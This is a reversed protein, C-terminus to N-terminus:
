RGRITSSPPAPCRAGRPRRQGHEAASPRRRESADGDHRGAAVDPFRQRAHEADGRTRVANRRLDHVWIGGAQVVIRTGDPSLRPNMYSRPTDSVPEEVGQRSVWVLRRQPADLPFVMLGAPSVDGVPAGGGLDPVNDLVLM